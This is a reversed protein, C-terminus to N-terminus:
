LEGLEKLLDDADPVQTKAKTRKAQDSAMAAGFRGQRMEAIGAIMEAETLTGAVAKARWQAVKSQYEPSTQM